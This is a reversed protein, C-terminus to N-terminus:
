GDPEDPQPLAVAAWDSAAGSGREAEELALAAAIARREEESPEPTIELEM